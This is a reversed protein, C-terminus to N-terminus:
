GPDTRAFRAWRYRRFPDVVRRFVKGACLTVRGPEKHLPASPPSTTTRVPISGTVKGTHVSREGM